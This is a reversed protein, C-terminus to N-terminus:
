DLREPWEIATHFVRLIQLEGEKVRYVIIYPLRHVILESTGAIRGSRGSSPFERLRYTAHEITQVVRKAAAPNDAAIRAHIGRLLRTARRLWRIKV